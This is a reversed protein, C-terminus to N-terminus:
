FTHHFEIGASELGQLLHLSDVSPVRSCVTFVCPDDEFRPHRVIETLNLQQNSVSLFETPVETQTQTKDTPEKGLNHRERLDDLMTRLPFMFPKLM